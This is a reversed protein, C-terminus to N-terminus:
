KIDLKEKIWFSFSYKKIISDEVSVFETNLFANLHKWPDIGVIFINASNYFDYNIITKNNTIIKCKYKLAEFFRLSLGDHNERRLDLLVKSKSVMELNEEYSLLNKTYQINPNVPKIKKGRIDLFIKFFELNSNEKIKSLIIQLDILRNKTYAAVYFLDISKEKFGSFCDIYFNDAIHLNPFRSKYISYDKEDFVFFKDFKPILNLVNPFRDVGDWQYGINYKSIEFIRDIVDEPYIDSRILFSYEFENKKFHSIIELIEKSKYKIYLKNKIKKDRFIDKQISLRMKDFLNMKVGPTSIDFVEFGCHNLNKAIADSIGFLSPCGFIIKKKM